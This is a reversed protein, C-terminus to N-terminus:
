AARCTECECSKKLMIRDRACDELNICVSVGASLATGEVEVFSGGLESELFGTDILLEESM